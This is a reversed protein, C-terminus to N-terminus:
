QGRSAAELTKDVLLDDLKQQLGPGQEAALALATRFLAPGTYQKRQEDSLNPYAALLLASFGQAVLILLVTFFWRLELRQLDVADRFRGTFYRRSGAIEGQQDLSQRIFDRILAPIDHPDHALRLLNAHMEETMAIHVKVPYKRARKHGNQSM